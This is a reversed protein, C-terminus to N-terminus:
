TMMKWIKLKQYINLTRRKIIKWSTMWEKTRVDNNIIPLASQDYLLAEPASIPSEPITRYQREEDEIIDALESHSIKSYDDSQLSIDDQYVPNYMGNDKPSVMEINVENDINITGIGEVQKIVDDPMPLHTFSRAKILKGTLLSMFKYTGQLNGTPGMCIGGVTRSIMVSNRQNGEIHVQAYAGFPMRCHKDASASLGTVITQPSLTNSVGGKPPFFNLWMVSFVVAHTIM